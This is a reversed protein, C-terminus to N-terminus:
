FAGFDVFEYVNKLLPFFDWYTDQMLHVTSQLKLMYSYMCLTKYIFEPQKGRRGQGRGTSRWWGELHSARDWMQYKLSECLNLM